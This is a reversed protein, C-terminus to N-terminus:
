SVRGGLQKYVHIKVAEVNDYKEGTSEVALRAHEWLEPDAAWAPPNKVLTAPASTLTRPGVVERKFESASSLAKSLGYLGGIILGGWMLTRWPFGTPENAALVPSGVSVLWAVPATMKAIVNDLEARSLISTPERLKLAAHLEMLDLANMQARKVQDPRITSVDAAEKAFQSAVTWAKNVDILVAGALFPGPSSYKARIRDVAAAMDGRWRDTVPTSSDGSSAHVRGTGHSSAVGSSYVSM